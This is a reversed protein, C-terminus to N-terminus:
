GKPTLFRRVVEAMAEPHSYSPVHGCGELVVRGANPLGGLLMEQHARGIVRDDEGCLLLVPQKIEPLLPRLDLSRLHLVQHAFVRIPTCSTCEMLYQWDSSPRGAFAFRNLKEAVRRRLPLRGTTGPLIRGIMALVVELKRLRRVAFGGQLVARPLRDPKRHLAKLAITSGFSSALVYAQPAQVHDLLAWVDQVLLDHTYRWLRAGDAVGRPLDYAICRFQRALRSIPMVFGDSRDSVGHIFLLPPGEGWVYYPMRYRGTDCVGRTAERAFRTRAEDLRIPELALAEEDSAAAQDPSGEGVHSPCSSQGCPLTPNM